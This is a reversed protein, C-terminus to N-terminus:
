PLRDFLKYAVELAIRLCHSRLPHVNQSDCWCFIMKTISICPHALPEPVPFKLMESKVASTDLIRTHTKAGTPPPPPINDIHSQGGPNAKLSITLSRQFPFEWKSLDRHTDRQTPQRKYKMSYATDGKSLTRPSAPPLRARATAFPSALNSVRGTSSFHVGSIFRKTAVQKVTSGAFLGKM